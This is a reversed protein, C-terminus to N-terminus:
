LIESHIGLLKICLLTFMIVFYHNIMRSMYLNMMYSTKQISLASVNGYLPHCFQVLRHEFLSCEYRIDYKIRETGKNSTTVAHLGNILLTYM